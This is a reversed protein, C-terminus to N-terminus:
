RAIVSRFIRRWRERLGRYSPVARAAQRRSARLLIGPIVFHDLNSVIRYLLESPKRGREIKVV